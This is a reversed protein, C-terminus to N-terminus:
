PREFNPLKKKRHLPSPPPSKRNSAPMPRSKPVSRSATSLWAASNRRNEASVKLIGFGLGFVVNFMTFLSKSMFLQFYLWLSLFSFNTIVFLVYVFWDGFLYTFRFVDLFQFLLLYGIVLVRLVITTAGTMTRIMIVTVTVATTMTMFDCDNDITM